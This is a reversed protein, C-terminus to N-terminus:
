PVIIPFIQVGNVEGYSWVRFSGRQVYWTIVGTIPLATGPPIDYNYQIQSIPGNALLQSSIGSGQFATPLSSEVGVTAQIFFLNIELFETFLKAFNVGFNIHTPTNGVYFPYNRELFAINDDHTEEGGRYFAVTSFVPPFEESGISMPSFGGVLVSSFPLESFGGLGNSFAASVCYIAFVQGHPIVGPPLIPPTYPFPPYDDPPCSPYCDPPNIPPYDPPLTPPPRDPFDFICSKSTDKDSALQGLDELYM